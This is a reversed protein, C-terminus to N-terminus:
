YKAKACSVVIDDILAIAQQTPIFNAATYIAAITRDALTMHISYGKVKHGKQQHYAALKRRKKNGSKVIKNAKILQELSYKTIDVKKSLDIQHRGQIGMLVFQWELCYGIIQKAEKTTM